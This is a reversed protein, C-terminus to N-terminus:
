FTLFGVRTLLAPPLRKFLEMQTSGGSDQEWIAHLLIKEQESGAQVGEQFARSGLCGPVARVQAIDGLVGVAHCEGKGSGGSNCNVTVHPTRSSVSKLAGRVNVGGLHSAGVSGKMVSSAEHCPEAQERLQACQRSILPLYMALLASCSGQLIRQVQLVSM